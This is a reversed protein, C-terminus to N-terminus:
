AAGQRSMYHNVKLLMRGEAEARVRKAKEVQRRLRDRLAVVDGSKAAAYQERAVTLVDAPILPRYSGECAEAPVLDGAAAAGLVVAVREAHEMVELQRRAEAVAIARTIAAISTDPAPRSAAAIRSEARALDNEVSAIGADLKTLAKDRATGLWEGARRAKAEGTLDPDAEIKAVEAEAARFKDLVSAALAFFGDLAEAAEPDHDLLAEAAFGHESFLRPLNATQM